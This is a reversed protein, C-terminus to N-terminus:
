GPTRPWKRCVRLGKIREYAQTDAPGKLRREIMEEPLGKAVLKDPHHQGILRRYAKKSKRRPVPRHFAWSPMPRQTFAKRVPPRMSTVQARHGQQGSRILVEIQRLTERTFAWGDPSRQASTGVRGPSTDWRNPRRCRFKLFCACCTPAATANRGCIPRHRRQAPLRAQKGENFLRIAAQRMDPPLQMQRMVREALQSKMAHGPRGDAVAGM